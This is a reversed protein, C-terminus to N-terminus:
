IAWCLSPPGVVLQRQGLSLNKGKFPKELKDRKAKLLLKIAHLWVARLMCGCPDKLVPDSGVPM